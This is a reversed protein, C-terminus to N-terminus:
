MVKIHTTKKKQRKIIYFYIKSKQVVRVHAAM